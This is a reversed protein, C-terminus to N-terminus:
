SNIIRWKGETLEGLSYDGFSIRKLRTVKYGLSDFTRRIQRNKGESMSVTMKTRSVNIDSLHLKSKGDNLTVGNRIKVEDASDLAKNITILYRKQKNFSPHTLKQALQGDDSFLLLGSSNKDLRGVPKLASYKDPLLEYITKAGQGDRSVVYGEPKNLILTTKKNSVSLEKGNMTVVDKASIEAGIEALSGNIKLQGSKLLYDAKRRSIGTALAVFANIRM